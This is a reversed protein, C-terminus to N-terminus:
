LQSEGIDRAGGLLIRRLKDGLPRLPCGWRPHCVPDPYCPRRVIDLPGKIAPVMIEQLAAIDTVDVGTIVQVSPLADLEPCTRRGVVVVSAGQTSMEKVLELGLGQNGGTILVCKGKLGSGDYVTKIDLYRAHGVEKAHSFRAVQDAISYQSTLRPRLIFESAKHFLRLLTSRIFRLM